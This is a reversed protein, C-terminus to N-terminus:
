PPTSPRPEGSNRCGPPLEVNLALRMDGQAPTKWLIDYTNPEIERIELFAPRIEHASAAPALGVLAMLGLLLFSLRM